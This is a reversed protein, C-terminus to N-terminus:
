DGLFRFIEDVTVRSQNERTYNDRLHRCSDSLLFYDDSSFDSIKLIEEAIHNPDNGFFQLGCGNTVVFEGAECFPTIISPIALGIYEWVKVPFAGKSLMDNTRFCLGLHCKSIHIITESFPLGGLYRVNSPLVGNLLNSKRGDGIIVVDINHFELFHSVKLLLEVDQFYGLTGHFCVTFRDNKKCDVEMLFSPFGNYAVIVQAKNCLNSIQDSLGKTAALNLCAKGYLKKSIFVLIRYIFSNSKLVGSDLFAEPYTDRVDLVYPIKKLYLVLAIFIASFYSPSSILFLDDKKNFIINIAVRLGLILESCLRLINSKSRSRIVDRYSKVKLGEFDLSTYSSTHATVNVGRDLLAKIFSEGRLSTAFPDPPLYQYFVGVKKIM